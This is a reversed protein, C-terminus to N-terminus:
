QCIPLIACSTYFPRKKGVNWVESPQHANHKQLLPRFLKNRSSGERTLINTPILLNWDAKKYLICGQWLISVPTSIHAQETLFPNLKYFYFSPMTDLLVSCTTQTGSPLFHLFLPLNWINFDYRVMRLRKKVKVNQLFCASFPYGRDKARRTRIPQCDDFDSQLTNASIDPM